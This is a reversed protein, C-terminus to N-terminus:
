EAGKSGVAEGGMRGIEECKRIIALRRDRWAVDSASVDLGQALRREIDRMRRTPGEADRKIQTVQFPRPWARKKMDRVGVLLEPAWGDAIAEQGLRNAFIARILPSASDDPRQFILARELIKQAIPFRDCEKGGALGAAEEELAMLNEASMYALKQCLERKMDEFQDVKLTTPRGFGRKELPEVLYAMVRKEGEAQERADM